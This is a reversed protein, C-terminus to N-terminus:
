RRGYFCCHCSVAVILDPWPTATVSLFAAGLVAVNGIADNRSCLWVSRVNADGDRYRMLLLASGINVALAMFGVVGMVIEDPSPHVLVRYLTAGFVWLGMVGLSGGKFLACRARTALPRGIAWLALGYTLADGLFDLADAQLAMSKAQHGALIEVLFMTANAAIVILLIRKYSKSLGDFRMNSQCGCEAMPFWRKTSDNFPTDVVNKETNFITYFTLLFLYNHYLM